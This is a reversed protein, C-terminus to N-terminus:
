SGLFKNRTNGYLKKFDIQAKEKASRYVADIIQQVRIGDELTCAPEVTGKVVEIFHQMELLFMTNREFTPDLPESKWKRKEANYVRVDGDANDWYITGQTGIIELTHKKPQQFYDLHLSAAAGNEYNML